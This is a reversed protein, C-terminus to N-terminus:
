KYDFFEIKATGLPVAFTFSIEDGDKMGNVNREMCGNEKILKGNEDYANYAIRFEKDKKDKGSIVGNFSGYVTNQPTDINEFEVNGFNIVTNGYVYYSSVVLEVEHTTAVSKPPQTVGPYKDINEAVPATAGVGNIYTRKEVATTAPSDPINSCGALCLAALALPAFAKLFRKM